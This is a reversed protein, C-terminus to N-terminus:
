VKDEDRIDLNTANKYNALYVFKYLMFPNFSKSGDELMIQIAKSSPIPQKYVRKSVLADYVDAIAAVQAFLAIEKGKLKNPYGFGGYKEQHQLAVVAIKEPLQMENTIIQYGFLPHSKMFTFEEDTLKGPKNLIEKPVKMKGVDHLLAGLALDKLEEDDFGLAMGLATCISSVNVTHSYTYEDFIRLQGICEIKEFKDSVEDLVVDRTAEAVSVEPTKGDKLDKIIKKTNDLLYSTAKESMISKIEENEGYSVPIKANKAEGEDIFVMKTNLMMLTPPTLPEGSRYLINKNEDYLNYNLSNQGILELPIIRKM